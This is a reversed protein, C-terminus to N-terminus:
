RKLSSGSIRRVSAETWTMSRREGKPRQASLAVCAFVVAFTALLYRGYNAGYGVDIIGAGGSNVAVSLFLAVVGAVSAALAVVRSAAASAAVGLVLMITVAVPLSKGFHNVGEVEPVSWLSVFEGAEAAWPVATWAGLATTVALGWVACQIRRNVEVGDM